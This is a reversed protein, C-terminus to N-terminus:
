YNLRFQNLVAFVRLQNVYDPPFLVDIRNVDTTSREVILNAAFLDTNEVLGLSELEGYLGILEAKIINPTIIAQGAGFRAGNDALKHRGYKQTIRQKMARLVYVSTYLTEIDLYSNDAVGYANKQYTTIMREILCVGSVVTYTSMGNYLLTNRESMNWRDEVSPALMGVLPLTQVPRAPDISLSKACQATMIAVAEWPPTPTKYIPMITAHQDNRTAGFTQAEALSKRVAIFVHGYIMQSYAWRGTADNMFDRIHNLNTTDSFSLAIFDFELDGLNALGNNIDPNLAGGSMETFKISVGAPTVEGGIEDLYNMRIDIDNGSTGKWKCSLMVTSSLVEATVPLDGTEQIAAAIEAAIEAATNGSNVSVALRQGAIYLYIAGAAQASGTVTITGTAAVGESADAIPLAWVTMMSENKRFAQYMRDIQSGRGAVSKASGQSSLLVPIDATDANFSQGILLSRYEQKNAGAVSNDMEAYFLPVRINSPINNFSVAM